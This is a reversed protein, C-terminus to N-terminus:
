AVSIREREEIRAAKWAALEWPDTAMKAVAQERSMGTGARIEDARKHLARMAPGRHDEATPAVNEAAPAIKMAKYIEGGAPTEWFRGLAKEITENFQRDATAVKRAAEYLETRTTKTDHGAVVRKAVDVLRIKKMESEKAKARALRRKKEEPTEKLEHESTDAFTTGFGARGPADPDPRATRPKKELAEIDHLGDRGTFEAYQEFTERLAANKQAKTVDAEYISAISALLAQVLVPDAEDDRKILVSFSQAGVPREVIKRINMSM